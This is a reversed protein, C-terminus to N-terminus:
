EAYGLQALRDQVIEEAQDRAEGASEAATIRRRPGHEYVLWPVTVLQDTYIGPPHGWERVPVPRARERLMNGHDSTVVIKGEVSNFLREISPLVADFNRYYADKVTELSVDLHDSYLAEWIDLADEEGGFTRVNLRDEAEIFPYHPQLYHVIIRKDPYKEHADLAYTTTTEPRVTGLSDDWGDEAWVDIVDHFEADLDPQLRALQPSATVYVTDRVDRGGFNGRLFERTHSGRSRRQELHGPLTWRSEFLDFRCADLVVLTDWDEELVAVGAPDFARTYGRRHYLRNLERGLFSPNHLSRSLGRRLQSLSYM